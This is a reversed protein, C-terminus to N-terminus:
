GGAHGGVGWCRTCCVYRTMNEAALGSRLTVGCAARAVVLLESTVRMIYALPTTGIAARFATTPEVSTASPRDRDASNYPYLLPSSLTLTIHLATHTAYQFWAAEELTYHYHVVYNEAGRAEM